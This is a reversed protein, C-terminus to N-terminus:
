VGAERLAAVTKAQEEKLAAPLRDGYSELYSSVADAEELWRDVDVGLLTRM